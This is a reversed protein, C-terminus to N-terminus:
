FAELSASGKQLPYGSVNSADYQVTVASLDDSTHDRSSIGNPTFPTESQVLNIKCVQCSHCTTPNSASVVSKYEVERTQVQKDSLTAKRTTKNDAQKKYDHQDKVTTGSERLSRKMQVAYETLKENEYALRKNEKLTHVLKFEVKNLEKTRFENNLQYEDVKRQMRNLSERYLHNQEQLAKNKNKLAKM